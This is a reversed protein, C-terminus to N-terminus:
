RGGRSWSQCRSSSTSRRTWRAKAAQGLRANWRESRRPAAGAHPATRSGRRSITNAGRGSVQIGQIDCVACGHVEHVGDAGHVRGDDHRRKASTHGRHWLLCRDNAHSRCLIRSLFFPTGPEEAKKVRLERLRTAQKDLQDHMEALDDALQARTELAGPLIVDGFLEPTSHFSVQWVHPSCPTVWPVKVYECDEASRLVRKGSRTCHSSAPHRWRLRYVRAGRRSLTEKVLARRCVSFIEGARFLAGRLFFVLPGSVRYAIANVEEVPVKERSSIEFLEQWELAREHAVM